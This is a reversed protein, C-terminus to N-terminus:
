IPAECEVIKGRKASKEQYRHLARVASPMWFSWLNHAYVGGSPTLAQNRFARAPHLSTGPDHSVSLDTENLRSTQPEEEAADQQSGCDRDFRLGLNRDRCRLHSLY